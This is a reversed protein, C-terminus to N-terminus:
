DSERPELGWRLAEIAAQISVDVMVRHLPRLEYVAARDGTASIMLARARPFIRLLHDPLAPDLPDEVEAVIADPIDRPEACPDFPYPTLEMDPERAIADTLIHRLRAKM